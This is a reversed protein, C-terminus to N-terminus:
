RWSIVHDEALRLAEQSLIVILIPVVVWGLLMDVRQQNFWYNVMYGVGSGAGFVEAIFLVKWSTIFGWYMSPFLYQLLQPVLVHRIQQRRSAGFFDAMEGINSDLDQAGEWMNLAVFPIGVLTVTLIPVWNTIGLLIVLSFAVFIAPLSLGFVVWARFFAEVNTRLGMLTGLVGGIAVSLVFGVLLRGFTVAVNSAFSGFAPDSIATNLATLVRAPSPFVWYQFFLSTVWWAALLLLGVLAKDRLGRGHSMLTM